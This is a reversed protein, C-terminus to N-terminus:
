IATLDDGLYSDVVVFARVSKIGSIRDYKSAFIM